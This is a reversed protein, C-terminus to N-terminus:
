GLTRRGQGSQLAELARQELKAEFTERSLTSTVAEVLKGRKMMYQPLRGTDRFGFRAMYRATLENDAYRIGHVALVDLEQFLLAIGMYTLTEQEDTGWFKPLFGYGAFCAKQDGSGVYTAVFEIGAPEFVEKDGDQRWMGLVAMPRTALYSVIADWSLDSMGCFLAELIGTGNPDRRSFRNGCLGDYIKGLYGPKFTSTLKRDYVIAQCDGYRYNDLKIADLFPTASM